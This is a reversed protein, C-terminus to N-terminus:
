LGALIKKRQVDYEAQTILKKDLMEKIEGLKKELTNVTGTRDATATLDGDQCKKQNYLAMLNSRRTDAAAIAENANAYTGIMAPWFFIVAAVNTGTMGKEKQADTKFREADTMETALQQCTLSSDSLKMPQVVHPTACGALLTVIAILFLSHKHRIHNTLFNHAFRLRM